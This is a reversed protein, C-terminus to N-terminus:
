RKNSAARNIEDELADFEQKELQLEEEQDLQLENLEDLLKACNETVQEVKEEDDITLLLDNSREVTPEM